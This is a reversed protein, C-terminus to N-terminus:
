VKEKDVVKDFGGDSVESTEPTTPTPTPTEPDTPTAENAIRVGNLENFKDVFKAYDVIM